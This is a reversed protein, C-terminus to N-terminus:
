WGLAAGTVGRDVLAAEIDMMPEGTRRKVRRGEWWDVTSNGLRRDEEYHEEGPELAFPVVVECSRHLRVHLTPADLREHVEGALDDGVGPPGCDVTAQARDCPRARARDVLEGPRAPTTM